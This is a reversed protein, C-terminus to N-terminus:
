AGPATPRRAGSRRQECEVVAVHQAKKRAGGLDPPRDALECGRSHGRSTSTMGSCPDSSAASSCSAASRGADDSAGRRIMTAVLMASVESVTGPTVATTSAPSCLTARYSASRPMSLRSALADGRVGGILAGAARPAERRADHAPQPIRAVAQAGVALRLNVADIQRARREVDDRPAAVRPRELPELRGRSFREFAAIARSSRSPASLPPTQGLEAIPHLAQGEM